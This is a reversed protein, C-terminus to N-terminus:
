EVESPEFPEAAEVSPRRSAAPNPDNTNSIDNAGRIRDVTPRSPRTATTAALTLAADIPTSLTSPTRGNALILERLLLNTEQLLLAQQRLLSLILQEPTPSNLIRDLWSM